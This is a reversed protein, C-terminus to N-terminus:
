AVTNLTTTVGLPFVGWSIHTKIYIKLWDPFRRLDLGRAASTVAFVAERVHGLSDRHEVYSISWLENYIFCGFSECVTFRAADSGVAGISPLRLFNKMHKRPM